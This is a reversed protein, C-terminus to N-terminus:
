LGKQSILQSPTWVLLFPAAYGPEDMTPLMRVGRHTSEGEISCKVQLLDPEAHTVVVAHLLQRSLLNHSAIIDFGQARLESFYEGVPAGKSMSARCARFGLSVLVEVAVHSDLSRGARHDEPTHQKVEQVTINRDPFRHNILNAIAYWVCEFSGAPQMLVTM